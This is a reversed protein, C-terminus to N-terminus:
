LGISEIKGVVKEFGRVRHTFNESKKRTRDYIGRHGVPYEEGILYM